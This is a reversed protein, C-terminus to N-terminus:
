CEVVNVALGGLSTEKYKENMDLGTQRMTEIAADLPVFHSGDGKIALSAATVAKVAGLANREICPVQVLGGIPDCTMGLHHELAIEAANEVQEPTGGMVACLGAAAMASASGVEGQCGVEAGSISANSKIIGGVAAATLLFDRISAQDAEPHFHLWYRLVAPLTGAAGNTPATVVRGGAANEENVAMAYVSLWDNALLPNPRNTRWEDNLKDHLGRARRRVKLGGPMIGEQSLGREICGRMASWVADLGADLRDREMLTEENVRKMEAISLGSKKAMALMEAANRFPYPVRKGQKDPGKTKQRQLEEESVVFGGGISYYIRKLLLRDDADYAYFAMGNAHGTLPTKRDLVLDSAPDFRYSPHGPPSIRKGREIAAITADSKDPDVTQPTEGTLGLIVARDTGHGVGTYALSGHLSVAIREIRAGAPRPWDGSRIEDLFRVAATMPGMTHSSSPGIGIKFLDFVSLFM